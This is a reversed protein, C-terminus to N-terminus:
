HVEFVTLLVECLIYLIQYIIIGTLSTEQLHVNILIDQIKIAPLLELITGQYHAYICILM